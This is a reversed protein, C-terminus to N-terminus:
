YSYVCCHKNVVLCQMAVGEPIQPKVVSLLKALTALRDYAARASQLKQHSVMRAMRHAAHEKMSVADIGTGTLGFSLCSINRTVSDFFKIELSAKLFKM